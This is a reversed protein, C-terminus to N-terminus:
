KRRFWRRVAHWIRRQLERSRERRAVRREEEMRKEALFAKASEPNRTRVWQGNGGGTFAM